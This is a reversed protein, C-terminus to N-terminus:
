NPKHEQTPILDLNTEKAPVLEFVYPLDETVAQGVFYRGDWEFALITNLSATPGAELTLSTRPNPEEPNLDVLLRHTDDTRMYTLVLGRFTYRRVM